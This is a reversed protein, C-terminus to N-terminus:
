SLKLRVGKVNVVPKLLPILIISKMTLFPGVPPLGVPNRTSDIVPLPLNNGFPFTGSGPALAMRALIATM